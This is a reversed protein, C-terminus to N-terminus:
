LIGEHSYDGQEVHTAFCFLARTLSKCLLNLNIDRVYTGCVDALLCKCNETHQPAGRSCRHPSSM